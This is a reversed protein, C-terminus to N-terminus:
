ASKPRKVLQTKPEEEDQFVEMQEVTNFFDGLIDSLRGLSSIVVDRTRLSQLKLRDVKEWVGNELTGFEGALFERMEQITERIEREPNQLGSTSNGMDDTSNRIEDELAQFKSELRQIESSERNLIDEPVDEIDVIENITYFITEMQSLTEQGLRQLRDVHVSSESYTEKIDDQLRFFFESGEDVTENVAIKMSVPSYDRIYSYVRDLPYPLDVDSSNTSSNSSHQTPLNYIADGFSSFADVIQNGYDTVSNWFYPASACSGIVASLLLLTKM